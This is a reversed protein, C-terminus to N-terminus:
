DGESTICNKLHLLDWYRHKDEPDRNQPFIFVFYMGLITVVAFGEVLVRVLCTLVANKDEVVDCIYYRVAKCLVGWFTDLVVAGAM